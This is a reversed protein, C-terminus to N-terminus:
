MKSCSTGAVKTQLISGKQAFFERNTINMLKLVSILSANSVSKLSNSVGKVERGKGKRGQFSGNIYM